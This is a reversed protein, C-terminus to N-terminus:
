IGVGGGWRIKDGHRLGRGKALVQVIHSEIQQGQDEDGGQAGELKSKM